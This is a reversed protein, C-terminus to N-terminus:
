KYMIMKRETPGSICINQIVSSVQGPHIVQKCTKDHLAMSKECECRTYHKSVM